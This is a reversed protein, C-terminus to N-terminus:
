VRPPRPIINSFFFLNAPNIQDSASSCALSALVDPIAPVLFVHIHSCGHQDVHQGARSGPFSHDDSGSDGSVAKVGTSLTARDIDSLAHLSVFFGLLLIWAVLKRNLM